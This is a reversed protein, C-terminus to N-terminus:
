AVEIGAARVARIYPNTATLYEQHGHGGGWTNDTMRHLMNRRPRYHIYARYDRCHKAYFAWNFVLDEFGRGTLSEDFRLGEFMERRATFQSNGHVDGAYNKAAPYALKAPFRMLDPRGYAEPARTFEPTRAFAGAYDGRPWDAPIKWVRYCVKTFAQAAEAGTAWWHGVIADADVISVLEGHAAELGLNLLRSKNFVPMPETDRILDIGAPWDADPGTGNDIVIIKYCARDLFGAGFSEHLSAVCDRLNGLRDRHPIIVSHHIM